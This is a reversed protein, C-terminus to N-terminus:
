PKPSASARNEWRGGSEHSPMERACPNAPGSYATLQKSGTVFGLGLLLVADFVVALQDAPPRREKWRGRSKTREEARKGRKFREAGRARQRAELIQTSTVDRGNARLVLGTCSSRRSDVSM